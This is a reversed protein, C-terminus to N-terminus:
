NVQRPGPALPLASQGVPKAGAGNERAARAIERLLEPPLDATLLSGHVEERSTPGGLLLNVKEILKVLDQPTVIYDPAKLNQAMKYLTSLTVTITAEHLELLLEARRQAYAEITHATQAERYTARKAEWGRKKAQTAVTSHNVIGHKACLGRISVDSTIYEHELLQYDHKAATTM